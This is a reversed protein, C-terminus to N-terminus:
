CLGRSPKFFGKSCGNLTVSFVPSSISNFILSRWKELFGLCRLGELLFRWNVRAYAKATDIKTMMNGGRTKRNLGNVLEQAITMNEFISRGQIFAAQESSVLGGIIPALRFVMIKGMIKYVVLCLSIPRFHGFGEPVDVKPILVINTAGFFNTWPIGEFFVTAMDFLDQKM